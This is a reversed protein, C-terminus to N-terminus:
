FPILFFNGGEPNSSVVKLNCELAKVMQAISDSKLVQMKIQSQAYSHSLLPPSDFTLHAILSNHQTDM